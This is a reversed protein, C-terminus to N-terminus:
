DIYFAQLVLSSFCLKIRDHSADVSFKIALQISSSEVIVRGTYIM